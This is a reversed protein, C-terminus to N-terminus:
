QLGCLGNVAGTDVISLNGPLLLFSEGYEGSHTQAASGKDVSQFDVFFTKAATRQQPQSQLARSPGAHGAPWLALMARQHSAWMTRRATCSSCNRITQKKGGAIVTMGTTPDWRMRRAEQWMSKASHEGSGVASTQLEMETDLKRLAEGVTVHDRYGELWTLVRQMQTQTLRAQRLLLKGKAHTPLTGHAYTECRAMEAQRRLIFAAYTEDSQRAGTYFLEEFEREHQLQIHSAYQEDFFRIIQEVGLPGKIQDDPLVDAMTKAKGQLARFLRVGQRERAVDSDEQWLRIERKKARWHLEPEVGDWVPPVDKTSTMNTQM